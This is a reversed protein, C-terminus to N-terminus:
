IFESVDKLTKKKRKSRRNKEVIVESVDKAITEALVDDDRVTPHEPEADNGDDFLIDISDNSGGGWAVSAQPVLSFVRGEIMTLLKVEVDMINREGILVKTPDCHRIFSFLNKKEAEGFVSLQSLHIRFHDLVDVLFQVTGIGKDWCGM